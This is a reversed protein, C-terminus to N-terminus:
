LSHLVSIRYPTFIHATSIGWCDVCHRDRAMRGGPTEALWQDSEVDSGNYTRGDMISMVVDDPTYTCVGGAGPMGPNRTESSGCGPNLSSLNSETPTGLVTSSM